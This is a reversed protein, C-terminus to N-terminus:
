LNAEIWDAIDLFSKGEDDNMSILETQAIGDLGIELCESPTFEGRDRVESEDWKLTGEAFVGLCCHRFTDPALRYKFYSKGQRFKDSRLDQIWNSKLTPDLKTYESM